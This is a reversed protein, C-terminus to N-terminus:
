EFGAAYDIIIPQRHFVGINMNHLDRIDVFLNRFRSARYLGGKKVRPMIYFTYGHFLRKSIPLPSGNLIMKIAFSSIM